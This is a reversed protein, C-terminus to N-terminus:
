SSGRSFPYAVWDLIGSSGHHNLHYLIQRCHPLGPNLGQTPFIGQLLDHCGVGTNKGPSDGDAKLVCAYIIFIYDFLFLHKQLLAHCDVGINNGPSDQPCLLRTLQLDAPDCLTLCSQLSEAHVCFSFDKKEVIIYVELFRVCKQVWYYCFFPLSIM